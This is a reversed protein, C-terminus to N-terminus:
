SHQMINMELLRYEGLASSVWRVPIINMELLFYEVLVSSVWRVPVIPCEIGITDIGLDQFYRVNKPITVDSDIRSLISIKSIELNQSKWVLNANKQYHSKFKNLKKYTERFFISNKPFTMLWRGAILSLIQFNHMTKQLFYRFNYAIIHLKSM